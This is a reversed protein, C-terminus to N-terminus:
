RRHVDTAAEGPAKPPRRAPPGFRSIDGQRLAELVEAVKRAQTPPTRAAAVLHALGRRKGPTLSRWHANAAVDAMLALALADPVDVRDQDDVRFRMEVPRGPEPRAARLVAPSVIFYRRGEGTPLWAGQVPVEAIEGEVRLRPHRDFPLQAELEPPLFLVTYWVVRARGVGWRELPAEFSHDYTM